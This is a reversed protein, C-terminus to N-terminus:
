LILLRISYRDKKKLHIDTKSITICMVIEESDCNDCGDSEGESKDDPDDM